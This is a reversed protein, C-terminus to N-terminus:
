LAVSFDIVLQALMASGDNSGQLGVTDAQLDGNTPLDLRVAFASIPRGADWDQLLQATVDILRWGSTTVDVVTGADSGPPDPVQGVALPADPHTALHSVVLPGLDEPVGSGPEVWVWLTARDIETNGPQLSADIPFGFVCLEVTGTATDGARYVLPTASLDAGGTTRQLTGSRDARAQISISQTGAYGEAISEALGCGGALPALCLVLCVAAPRARPRPLTPM